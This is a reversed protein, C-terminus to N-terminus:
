FLCDMYILDGYHVMEIIENSDFKGLKQKNKEQEDKMQKRASELKSSLGSSKKKERSLREYEHKADYQLAQTIRFTSELCNSPISAKMTNTFLGDGTLLSAIQSEEDVCGILVVDGFFVEGDDDDENIKALVSNNGEPEAKGGEVSPSAM